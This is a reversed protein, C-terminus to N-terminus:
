YPASMSELYGVACITPMVLHYEVLLLLEQGFTTLFATTVTVARVVMFYLYASYLVTSLARVGTVSSYVLYVRCGVSDFGPCLACFLCLHSCM